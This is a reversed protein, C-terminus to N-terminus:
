QDWKGEYYRDVFWAVCNHLKRRDCITLDSLSSVVDRNGANATRDLRVDRGDVDDILPWSFIKALEDPSTTFQEFRFFPLGRRILRDIAKLDDRLMCARAAFGPTAGFWRLPRKNIASLALQAPHRLLVAKHDVKLDDALFRLFSNVEGYNDHCAFRHAVLKMHAQRDYTTYDDLWGRGDDAHEHRVIMKRSRALAQALFMTGSRGCGTILFRM